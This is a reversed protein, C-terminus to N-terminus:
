GNHDIELRIINWDNAVLPDERLEHQELFPLKIWINFPESSTLEFCSYHHIFKLKYQWSYKPENEVHDNGSATSNKRRWFETWINSNKMWHHHHKFIENFVRHKSKWQICSTESVGNILSISSVIENLENGSHFWSFCVSDNKKENADIVYLEADM